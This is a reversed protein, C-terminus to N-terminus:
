WCSALVLRDSSCRQWGGTPPHTAAPPPLLRPSAPQRAASRGRRGVAQPRPRRGPRGLWAGGCAARRRLWAPRGEQAAAGGLCSLIGMENSYPAVLELSAMLKAMVGAARRSPAVTAAACRGVTSASSVSTTPRRHGPLDRVRSALAHAASVLKGVPRARAQAARACRGRRWEASVPRAKPATRGRTVCNRPNQRLSRSPTLPNERLAHRTLSHTRPNERLSDSLSHSRM